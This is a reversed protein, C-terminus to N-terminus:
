LLENRRDKDATDVRMVKMAAMIAKVYKKKRLVSEESMNM